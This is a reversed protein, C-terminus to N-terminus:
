AAKKMEEGEQALRQFFKGFDTWFKVMKQEWRKKDAQKWHALGQGVRVKGDAGFRKRDGQLKRPLRIGAKDQKKHRRCMKESALIGVECGLVCCRKM